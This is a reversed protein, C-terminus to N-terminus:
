DHRELEPGTYEVVNNESERVRVLHLARPPLHPSLIEWISLAVNETTSLRGCMFPVDKDLSKHSAPTVVLTDLLDKLDRLNMVMGTRPDPTGRVVVEVEYNHGHGNPNNCAGFLERNEDDSLDRNHLRHSASFRAKRSIYMM